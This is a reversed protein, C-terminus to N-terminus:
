EVVEVLNNVYENYNNTVSDTYYKLVNDDTFRPRQGYRAVYMILDIGTLGKSLGEKERRILEPYQYELNYEVQFLMEGNADPHADLNVQLLGRSDEEKTNHCQPNWESEASIICYPIYENVGGMEKYKNLALGVLYHPKNTKTYDFKTVKTVTPASTSIPKMLTDYILNDKPEVGHYKATIILIYAVVVFILVALVDKKTM